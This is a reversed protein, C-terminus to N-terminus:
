RRLGGVPRYMNLKFLFLILQNQFQEESMGVLAFSLNVLCDKVNKYWASQEENFVLNKDKIYASMEKEIMELRLRNFTTNEYRMSSYIRELNYNNQFVEWDRSGPIKRMSLEVWERDKQEERRAIEANHTAVIPKYKEYVDKIFDDYCTRNNFGRIHWTYYDLNISKDSTLATEIQSIYNQKTELYQEWLKSKKTTVCSVFLAFVLVFVILRKM